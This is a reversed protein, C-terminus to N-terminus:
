GSEFDGLDGGNQERRTTAFYGDQVGWFGM